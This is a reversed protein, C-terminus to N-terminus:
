DGPPLYESADPDVRVKAFLCHGGHAGLETKHVTTRCDECWMFEEEAKLCYFECDGECDLVPRDRKDCTGVSAIFADPVWRKCERCFGM